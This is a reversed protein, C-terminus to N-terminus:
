IHFFVGSGLPCYTFSFLMPMYTHLCVVLPSYALASLSSLHTLHHSLTTVKSLLSACHILHTSLLSLRCGIILTFTGPTTWGFWGADCQCSMLFPHRSWPPQRCENSALRHKGNTLWSSTVRGPMGVGDPTPHVPRTRPASASLFHGGVDGCGSQTVLSAGPLMAALPFAPLLCGRLGQHVGCFMSFYLLYLIFRFYLGPVDLYSIGVPLKRLADTGCVRGTCGVGSTPTEMLLNQKVVHKQSLELVWIQWWKKFYLCHYSCVIILSFRWLLSLFLLLM